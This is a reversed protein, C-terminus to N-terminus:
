NIVRKLLKRKGDPKVGWLSGNWLNIGLATLYGSKTGNYIKKFRQNTRFLKGTVIFQKFTGQNLQVM